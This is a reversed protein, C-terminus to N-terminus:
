VIVIPIAVTFAALVVLVIGPADILRDRSQQRIELLAAQEFAREDDQGALESAGWHHLAAFAAIMVRITEGSPHSAAPDFASFGDSLGVLEAETGDLVFHVHVIQVGRHESQKPEVM